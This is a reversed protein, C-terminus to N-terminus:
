SVPYKTSSRNAVGSKSPMSYRPSSHNAEQAAGPGVGQAIGPIMRRLRRILLNHVPIALVVVMINHAPSSALFRGVVPALGLRTLEATMGLFIRLMDSALSLIATGLFLVLWVIVSVVAGRFRFLRITGLGLFLVFFQVTSFNGIMMQISNRGCFRFFAMPAAQLCGTFTALLGLSLFNFLDDFIGRPIFILFTCTITLVWSLWPLQGASQSSDHKTNM